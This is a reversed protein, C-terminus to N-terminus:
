LHSLRTHTHIGLSQQIPVPADILDGGWWCDRYYCSCYGILSTICRIRRRDAWTGIPILQKQNVLWGVLGCSPSAVMLHRYCSRLQLREDSPRPQRRSGGDGAAAADPRAEPGHTSATAADTPPRAARVAMSGSWALSVPDFSRVNECIGVSLLVDQVVVVLLLQHLTELARAELEQPLMPVAPRVFWWRLTPLRRRRLLLLLVIPLHRVTRIAHIYM